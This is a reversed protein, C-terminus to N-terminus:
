KLKRNESKIKFKRGPKNIHRSFHFKKGCFNHKREYNIKTRYKLM